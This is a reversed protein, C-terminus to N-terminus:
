VNKGELPSLIKEYVNKLETSHRTEDDLLANLIAVRNDARNTSTVATSMEINRGTAPSKSRIRRRDNSLNSYTFRYRLFRDNEDIPIVFDSPFWGTKEGM